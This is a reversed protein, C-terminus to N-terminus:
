GALGVARWDTLSLRFVLSYQEPWVERIAAEVEVALRCRGM